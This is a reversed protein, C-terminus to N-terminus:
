DFEPREDSQFEECLKDRIPMIQDTGYIEKFRRQRANKKLIDTNKNQPFLLYCQSARWDLKNPLKEDNQKYLFRKSHNDKINLDENNSINSLNKIKFIKASKTRKEIKKFNNNRNVKIPENDPGKYNINNDLYKNNNDKDDNNMRDIDKDNFINSRLYKLRNFKPEEGPEYINNTSHSITMPKLKKNANEIEKNGYILFYKM